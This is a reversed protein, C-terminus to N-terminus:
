SEWGHCGRCAAIAPWRKHTDWGHSSGLQQRPRRRAGRRITRDPFGGNAAQHHPSGARHREVWPTMEHYLERSYGALRYGADEIRRILAEYVPAIGEM